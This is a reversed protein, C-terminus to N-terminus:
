LEAGAHLPKEQSSRKHCVWEATICGPPCHHLYSISRGSIEHKGQQWISYHYCTSWNAGPSSDLTQTGKWSSPKSRHQPAHTAWPNHNQFFFSSIFYLKPTKKRRKFFLWLKKLDLKHLGPQDRLIVQWLWSVISPGTKKGALVWFQFRM